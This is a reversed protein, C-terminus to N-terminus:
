LKTEDYANGAGAVVRLKAPRPVLDLQGQDLTYIGVQGASLQAPGTYSIVRGGAYFVPSVISETGVNRLYVLNGVVNDFRPMMGSSQQLANTRNEATKTDAQVTKQFFFYAAGSIAVVLLVLALVVVVESIGKSM